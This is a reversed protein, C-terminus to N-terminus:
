ALLRDLARRYGRAISGEAAHHGGRLAWQGGVMVDRVASGPGFLHSDLLLDGRRGHLSPHSPDLVVLDARFGPAIRGVPRGAARAGGLLADSWLATGCHPREADAAVVRRLQAFRQSQELLRLEAAADTTMNSDSGVGYTGGAALFPTLPFIGDGLDAETSPCLGIVAQRAAVTALEGETLHTGHVLCWFPDLEAVETVLELPRRGFRELCDRVERPQEALHVHIPMQVPQARAAAVAAAIAAQPVARVSHVALGVRRNPDDAFARELDGALRVWGDPDLAFRRQAGALPSGDVGAQMYVVPLLTLAIGTELAAEHIALSMAAPEDYTRGDPRHHLYHFEVVSTYGGKLLEVQLQAAIARQEDPTIREAFRYMTDRWTWFSAEDAGLKQTLGALARQFAHSHLDIMGPIVIGKLREVTQDSRGAAVSAINGSPEVEILVDEAWGQPLLVTDARYTQM